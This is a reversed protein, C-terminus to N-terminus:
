TGVAPQPWCGAAPRPHSFTGGYQGGGRPNSLVERFSGFVYVTLLVVVALLACHLFDMRFRSPLLSM